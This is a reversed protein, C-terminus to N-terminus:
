VCPDPLKELKTCELLAKFCKEQSCSRCQDSCQERTCQKNCNIFSCGIFSTFCELCVPSFTVHHKHLYKNVCLDILYQKASAAKACDFLIKYFDNAPVHDSKMLYIELDGFKNSRVYLPNEMNKQGNDDNEKLNDGEIKKDDNKSLKAGNIIDQENKRTCGEPYDKKLFNTNNYISNGNASYSRGYNSSLYFKQANCVCLFSSLALFLVFKLIFQM